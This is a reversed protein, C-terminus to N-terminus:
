DFSFKPFYLSTMDQVEFTVKLNEKAANRNAADIMGKYAWNFFESGKLFVVMAYREAAFSAAVFTLLFIMVLMLIIFKKM